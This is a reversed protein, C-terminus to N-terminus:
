ASLDPSRRPCTREPLFHPVVQRRSCKTMCHDQAIRTRERELAKEQESVNTLPPAPIKEKWDSRVVPPQSMCGFDGLAALLCAGVLAALFAASRDARPGNAPERVWAGDANRAAVRFAYHGPPIYNYLASRRTGAELWDPDLGDLRYRFRM